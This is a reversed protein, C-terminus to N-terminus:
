DSDIMIVDDDDVGWDPSPSRTERAKEAKGTRSNPVRSSEAPNPRVPQVSVRSSRLTRGAGWSAPAEEPESADAKEKEKGKGNSPAQNHNRRGKLAYGTGSFNAPEPPDAASPSNSAPPTYAAVRFGFFLQGFPLNLAAPVKVNSELTSNSV